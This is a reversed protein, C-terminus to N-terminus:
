LIILKKSLFLSNLLNVLKMKLLPKPTNKTLDKMRTGFGAALIMLTFNRM